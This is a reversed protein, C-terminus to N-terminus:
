RGLSVGSTEPTMDSEEDLVADFSGGVALHLQVCNVRQSARLRIVSAQTDIQATQLNSVWLLDRRGGKYQITGIRVAEIRSELAREEFGLQEGLLAENALGNEVEEFAALLVAGYRAVAEAQRADAIEMKARLRGGEYIPLSVGFAAQALWPNLRLLSLINDDLRGGVLSITFDPFFALDAVEKRRFASLVEREAAVLDPRREVLSAPVAAAVPPPLAVQNEAVEIEAAPYRGLLVELARRAEGYNARAAALESQATYLKARTDAIDLDSDRGANRRAVILDLMDSFVQVSQEALAVLQRSEITLFWSMAVTAALSQRAYEYDLATAEASAQTAARGARLKGWIDLEWSIGAYTTLRTDTDSTDDDRTASGGFNIGVQPMLRSGVVIVSQRAALVRQAAQRLDLNNAIAEDVLAVLVPDGFSALWDDIVPQAATEAAWASPIQTGEPLAEKILASPPPAAELCGGVLGVGTLLVAISRLGRLRLIPLDLQVM